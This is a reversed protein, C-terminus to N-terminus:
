RPPGGFVSALQGVLQLIFPLSIAALLIGYFIRIWRPSSYPQEGSYEIEEEYYPYDDQNEEEQEELAPPANGAQREDSAYRSQEESDSWRWGEAPQPRSDADNQPLLSWGQPSLASGGYMERDQEFQPTGTADAMDPASDILRRADEVLHRPVRIDQPVYDNHSFHAIDASPSRFMLVPIDANELQSKILSGIIANPVNAVLTWEPDEGPDFQQENVAAPERSEVPVNCDPCIEVWSEYEYGCSPCINTHEPAM